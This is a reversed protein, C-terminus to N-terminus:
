MVENAATFAEISGQLEDAVDVIRGGLYLIVHNYIRKIEQNDTPCAELESLANVGEACLVVLTNLEHDVVICDM